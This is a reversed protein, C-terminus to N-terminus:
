LHSKAKHAFRSLFGGETKSAMFAKLELLLARNEETARKLQSRLDDSISREREIDDKLLRVYESTMDEVTTLRSADPTSTRGVNLSRIRCRNADLTSLHARLSKEDVFWNGRNNTKAKVLNQNIWRRVTTTSCSAWQSAVKLPVHGEM